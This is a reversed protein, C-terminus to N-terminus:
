VGGSHSQSKPIAGRDTSGVLGGGATLAALATPVLIIATMALILKRMCEETPFIHCNGIIVSTGLTSGRLAPARSINRAVQTTIAVCARERATPWARIPTPLRRPRVRM